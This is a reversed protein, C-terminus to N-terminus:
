SNCNLLYSNCINCFIVALEQIVFIHLGQAFRTYDQHLRSLIAFIVYDRVRNQETTSGGSEAPALFGEGNEAPTSKGRNETWNQYVHNAQDRSM